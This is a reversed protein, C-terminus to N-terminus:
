ISKSDVFEFNQFFNDFRHTSFHSFIAFFWPFLKGPKLSINWYLLFGPFINGQNQLFIGKYHFVLSIIERTKSFYEYIAFFWPFIKGPKLSKLVPIERMTIKSTLKGRWHPFTAKGCPPIRLISNEKACTSANRCSHGFAVLSLIVDVLALSFEIMLIGGHPLPM